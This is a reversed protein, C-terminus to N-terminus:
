LFSTEFRFDQGRVDIQAVNNKRIHGKIHEDAIYKEM